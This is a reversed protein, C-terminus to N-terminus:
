TREALAGQYITVVIMCYAFQIVWYLYHDQQIKEFGYSAFFHSNKGIFNAPEGFGLGYGVLWFAIIAIPINFLNKILVASRNKRRVAGSEILAYGATQLFIFGASVLIWVADVGQQVTYKANTYEGEM